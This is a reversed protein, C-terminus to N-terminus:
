SHIQAFSTFPKAAPIKCERNFSKFIPIIIITDPLVKCVFVDIHEDFIAMPIQVHFILAPMQRFFIVLALDVVFSRFDAPFATRFITVERVALVIM